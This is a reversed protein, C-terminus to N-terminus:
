AAVEMLIIRSSGNQVNGSANLRLRDTSTGNYVRGQTKYTVSSTTNPSDLVTRSHSFWAGISTAGGTSYGIDFPGTNDTIPTFIVTSDRLIRIGAFGSNSSRTLQAHHDIIVLIKSSTSSPTISASLNTDEYTTTTLDAHTDDEAMVVQLINGARELRDITGAAAPVTLALDSNVTDPVDLEVSGGGNTANLKLGM